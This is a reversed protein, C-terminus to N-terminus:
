KAGAVPVPWHQGMIWPAIYKAAFAASTDAFHSANSDSVM